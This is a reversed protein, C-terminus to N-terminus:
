LNFKTGGFHLVQKEVSVSESWCRSNQMLHLSAEWILAAVGADSEDLKALVHSALKAELKADIVGGEAAVMKQCIANAATYWAV